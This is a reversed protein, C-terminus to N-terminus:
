ITITDGASLYSLRQPLIEKMLAFARKGTCHCTYYVTGGKKLENAIDAVLSDKECKKSVPNYLHFGGISYDIGGETLEQARKLINVIGRHACGALLVNKGNEKIILNQEHTFSDVAKRGDSEMFLAKNSESLFKNESIDSFLMLEDDIITQENTLIVQPHNKFKEDLGVNIKLALLNTMHKEFANERIYVKATKNKELFCSLAGGHDSHGHSIIVTDVEDIPVNMRQANELFFKNPGLDFLIKHKQTEIYLSLGHKSKIKPSNSTNEVLAKIIM